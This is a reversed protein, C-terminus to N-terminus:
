GLMNRAICPFPLMKGPGRHALSPGDELTSYEGIGKNDYYRHVYM